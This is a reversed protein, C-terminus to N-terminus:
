TTEKKVKPIKRSPRSTSAEVPTVTKVEVKALSLLEINLAVELKSITELTLNENGKLWKSVQQPSVKVRSALEKKSIKLEDLRTLIRFAIQHSIMLWRQNDIRWKLQETFTDDQGEVLSLFKEKNTM